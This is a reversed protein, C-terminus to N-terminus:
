ILDRLILLDKVNVVGDRNMDVNDEVMVGTYKHSLYLKLAVYDMLDVKGDNNADGLGCTTQPIDTNVGTFAKVIGPYVWTLNHRNLLGMSTEYGYKPDVEFKGGNDWWFCKIGYKHCQEVSYKTYEVRDETNNKSAAAMEGVIVPINKSTFHHYLSQIYADINAKGNNEKWKTQSTSESMVNCYFYPAYSHVQLILSNEVTDTPMVFDDLVNNDVSAAYTNVVLCRTPNNGGTSRVTDVFMQNYKNVANTAEKGPYSWTSKEDLIENFGEFLLKNDYDKFRNAIQTWLSKFKASNKKLSNDSAWLWGASGVDHHVNIICYMDNDIVYNVVEQVRDMWEKNITGDAEFHQAWTVPVRITNFGAKKVMNIMAKTTVPNGWATEFDSTKGKTQQPIWDGFSDLTNGLNWGSTIKNSIEGATGKYDFKIEGSTASVLKVSTIKVDEGFPKVCINDLKSFDSGYAEKIADYTYYAIGKMAYSATVQGWETGGSWSQFIVCPAGNGEYAIELNFPTEMDKIDYNKIDVLTAWTDGWAGKASKEGQFLIVEKTKNEEASVKTVLGQPIILLFVMLLAMLNRLIKSNLKM